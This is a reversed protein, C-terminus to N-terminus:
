QIPTQLIKRMVDDEDDDGDVADDYNNDYTDTIWIYLGINSRTEILGGLLLLFFSM